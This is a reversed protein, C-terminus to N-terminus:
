EFLFYPEYRESLGPKDYTVKWGVAQFDEEFDLYGNKFVSDRTFKGCDVDGVILDLIENQRIRASRTQKNYNKVLLENVAQIVIDPVKKLKIVEDKTLPKVEKM